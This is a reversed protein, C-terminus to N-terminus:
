QSAESAYWKKQQPHQQPIIDIFFAWEGQICCHQSFLLSFLRDPNRSGISTNPTFVTACFFDTFPYLVRSTWLYRLWALKAHSDNISAYYRNIQDIIKNRIQHTATTLTYAVFGCNAIRKQKKPLFSRHHIDRSFRRVVYWRVKHNRLSGRARKDIAKQKSTRRVVHKRTNYWYRVSCRIKSVYLVSIGLVRGLGLRLIMLPSFLFEKM